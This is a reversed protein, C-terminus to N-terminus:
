AKQYGPSSVAAAEEDETKKTYVNKLREAVASSTATKIILMHAKLFTDMNALEIEIKCSVTDIIYPMQELDSDEPFISKVSFHFLQGRM